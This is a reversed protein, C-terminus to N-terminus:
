SPGSAPCAPQAEPNGHSGLAERSKATVGATEAEQFGENRGRKQRRRERRKSLDEADAQM